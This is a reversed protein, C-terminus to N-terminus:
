WGLREKRAAIARLGAEVPNVIPKELADEISWGRLLRRKVTSPKLRFLEAWETLPKEEGKYSLLRNSRRNRAQTKSDAFRCNWPAYPGDNDIRDITAGKKYGNSLAWDYFSRMNETWEDCVYIGRAGYRKYDKCSANNCRAKMGELLRYLPHNSLNHKTNKTMAVIQAHEKNWCGCSKKKGARLDSGRAYTENGCDCQCLWMNKSSGVAGVYKIVRLRFFRQGAIDKRPNM